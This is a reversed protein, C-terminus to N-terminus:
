CALSRRESWSVCVWESNSVYPLNLFVETRPKEKGRALAVSGEMPVARPLVKVGPPGGNANKNRAFPPASRKKRSVISRESSV